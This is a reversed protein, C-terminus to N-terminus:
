RAEEPRGYSATGRAPTPVGRGPAAPPPPATAAPAPATDFRRVFGLLRTVHLRVEQGQRLRSAQQPRITWTRVGDHTELVLQTRSRTRLTRGNRGAGNNRYRQRHLMRRVPRPIFDGTERRQVALVRGPVARTSLIDLVAVALKLVCYLLGLVLLLRGWRFATDVQAGTVEYAQLDLGGDLSRDFGSVYYLLFGLIVGHVIASTGLRWPSAGWWPRLRRGFLQETQPGMGM